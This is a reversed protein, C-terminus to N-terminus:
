RYVGLAQRKKGSKEGWWCSVQRAGDGKTTKEHTVRGGGQCFKDRLDGEEPPRSESKGEVCLPNGGVKKWNERGVRM